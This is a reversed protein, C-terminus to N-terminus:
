HLKWKLFRASRERSEVGGACMETKRESGRSERIVHVFQEKRVTDSDRSIHQSSIGRYNDATPVCTQPARAALPFLSESQARPVPRTARGTAGVASFVAFPRLPLAASCLPWLPGRRLEATAPSVDSSVAGDPREPRKRSAAPRTTLRM